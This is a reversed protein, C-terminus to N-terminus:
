WASRPGGRDESCLDTHGGLLSVRGSTEQAGTGQSRGLAASLATRPEGDQLRSSQDSPTHSGMEVGVQAGQPWAPISGM